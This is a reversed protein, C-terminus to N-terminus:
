FREIVPQLAAKQWVPHFPMVLWTRTSGERGDGNNDSSGSKLREYPVRQLSRLMERPWKFQELRDIFVRRAMEFNSRSSCTSALRSVNAAPWSKHVSFPHGSTLCLPVGLSTMKFHTHYHLSGSSKYLSLDLVDLAVM